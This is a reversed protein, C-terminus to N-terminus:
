LLMGVCFWIIFQDCLHLSSIDLINTQDPAKGEATRIELGTNPIVLSGIALAIQALGALKIFENINSLSTVM